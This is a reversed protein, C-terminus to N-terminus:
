GSPTAAYDKEQGHRDYTFTASTATIFLTLLKVNGVHTRLQRMARDLHHTAFMTQCLARSAGCRAAGASAAVLVVFASAVLAPGALRRFGLARM